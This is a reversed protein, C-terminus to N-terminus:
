LLILIKLEERMLYMCIQRPLVIEKRTPKNIRRRLIM